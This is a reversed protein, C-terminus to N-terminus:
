HAADAGAPEASTVPATGWNRNAVRPVFFFCLVAGALAAGAPLLMSTAMASSFGAQLAEPLRGAAEARSGAGAGGPLSAALRSQILVAIAASGLVSGVQRV